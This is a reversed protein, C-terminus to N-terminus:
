NNSLKLLLSVPLKGNQQQSFVFSLQLKWDAKNEIYKSFIGFKPQNKMIKIQIKEQIHQLDFGIFLFIPTETWM